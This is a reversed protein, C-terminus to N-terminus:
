PTVVTGGEGRLVREVEDIDGIHAPRGTSEVFRLAAEVKPGMSGPPLQREGQCRRLDAAGITGHAVAFIREASAPGATPSSRAGGASARSM